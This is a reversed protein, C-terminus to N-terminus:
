SVLPNQFAIACLTLGVLALLACLVVLIRLVNYYTDSTVKNM